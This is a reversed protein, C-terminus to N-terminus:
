LLELTPIVLEPELIRRKPMRETRRGQPSPRSMVLRQKRTLGSVALKALIRPRGRYHGRPRRWRDPM